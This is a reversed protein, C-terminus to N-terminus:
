PLVAQMRWEGDEKWVLTWLWDRYLSAAMKLKAIADDWAHKGKVEYCYLKGDMLKIWDPTYRLGNALRVTICQEYIPSGSWNVSRLYKGFETELQNSLPKSSQRIRKKPNISVGGLYFKPAGPEGLRPCARAIDQNLAQVSKSAKALMQELQEQKM